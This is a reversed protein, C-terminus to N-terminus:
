IEDVLPPRETPIARKRVLPWPTQKQKTQLGLSTGAYNFGIIKMCFLNCCMLFLTNFLIMLRDGRSATLNDIERLSGAKSGFHM